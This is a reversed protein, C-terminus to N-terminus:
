KCVNQSTNLLLKELWYIRLKVELQFDISGSQMAQENFGLKARPLTDCKKPRFGSLSKDSANNGGVVPPERFSLKKRPKSARLRGDETIEGSCDVVELTTASKVAVEDDSQANQRHLKLTKVGDSSGDDNNSPLEWSSSRRNPPTTEDVRLSQVGGGSGSRESTQLLSLDLSSNRRTIKKMNNLRRIRETKNSNHDIDDPPKLNEDLKTDIAAEPVSKKHRSAWITLFEFTKTSPRIPPPPPPPTPPDIKNIPLTDARPRLVDTLKSRARGMMGMQLQKITFEARRKSTPSLVAETSSSQKQMKM